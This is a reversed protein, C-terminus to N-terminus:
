IIKFRQAANFVQVAMAAFVCRVIAFREEYESSIKPQGWDGIEKSGETVWKAVGKAATPYAYPLGHQINSSVM